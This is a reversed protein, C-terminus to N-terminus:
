IQRLATLHNNAFTPAQTKANIIANIPTPSSSDTDGKLRLVAITATVVPPVMPAITPIM